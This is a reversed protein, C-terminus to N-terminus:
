YNNPNSSETLVAVVDVISIYWEEKEKDWISRVKKRNEACNKKMIKNEQCDTAILHHFINHLLLTSATSKRNPHGM